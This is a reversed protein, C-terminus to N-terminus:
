DIIQGTPTTPTLDSRVESQRNAAHTLLSRVVRQHHSTIAAWIARAAPNTLQILTAFLLGGPESRLLLEARLGLWSDAALLIADPDRHKVKWGLVRDSSWPPGLRLGLAIWGLWLDRRVRPPADEIVACAWEAASQDVGVTVACADAYDVRPLTSLARADDPLPIQSVTPTSSTAIRTTNRPQRTTTM